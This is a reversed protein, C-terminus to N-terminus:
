VASILLKIPLDSINESNHNTLKIFLQQTQQPLVVPNTIWLSDISVNNKQLPSLLFYYVPFSYNSIQQIDTFKKQADSIIFLLPNSLHLTLVKNLIVSLPISTRTKNIKSLQELIENQNLTSYNTTNDNTILVFKTSKSFSLVIEKAKTLAIDLLKGEKGLNEM